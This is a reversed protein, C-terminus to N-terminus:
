CSMPIMIEFTSGKGPHSNVRVKGQYLLAIHKVISLGLGTGGHSRTRGKDVRYFREFVREKHSEDFGVGTDTVVLKVYRGESAATVSIKGADTYKIANDLLNIMLQKLHDESICLELDEPILTELLIKKEDARPKLMDAVQSVVDHVNMTSAEQPKQMQEIDSLTLIDNILRYLRDSEIDIIELFRRATAQDEIAGGKLTDVFGKISTLPTKLEHSVNSVFDSRMKELKRMQTVDAIVMISGLHKGSESVMPNVYVRLMKEAHVFHIEKVQPTNEKSCTEVMQVMEDNRLVKYISTKEASYAESIDLIDFSMKNMMLVHLSEDIAIVGNIMSNLIVELEMNRKSVETLSLNLKESMSNFSATLTAIEDKGQAPIKEGFQGSAINEAAQTLRTVPESIRKSVLVGMAVALLSVLAISLFMYTETKKIMSELEYLPRAIRLVYTKNSITVPIAAYMLDVKLTNSYRVFVAADDKFLAEKVEERNIHNTMKDLVEDTEAVVLGESDIVTVRVGIDEKLRKAYAELSEQDGNQLLLRQSLRIENMMHNEYQALVSDFLADKIVYFFAFSMLLVIVIYSVIIKKRM